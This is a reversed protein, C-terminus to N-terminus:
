SNYGRDFSEEEQYFKNRQLEYAQDPSININGLTFGFNYYENLLLYVLPASNLKNGKFRGSEQEMNNISVQTKNSTLKNFLKQIQPSLSKESDIIIEGSRADWANDISKVSTNYNKVNPFLLNFVKESSGEPMVYVMMGRIHKCLWGMFYAKESETLLNNVNEEYHRFRTLANGTGKGIGFRGQVIQLKDVLENIYVDLCDHILYYIYKKKIYSEIYEKDIHHYLLKYIEESRKSNKIYEESNKISDSITSVQKKIEALKTNEIDAIENQIDKVNKEYDEYDNIKKLDDKNFSDKSVTQLFQLASLADKIQFHKWKDFPVSYDLKNKERLLYKRMLHLNKQHYNYIELNGSQEPWLYAAVHIDVFHSLYYEIGRGFHIEWKLDKFTNQTMEFEDPSMKYFYIVWLSGLKSDSLIGNSDKILKRTLRDSAYDPDNIVKYDKLEKEKLRISQKIKAEENNLNGLADNLMTSNKNRLSEIENWLADRSEQNPYKSAFNNNLLKKAYPNNHFYDQMDEYFDEYSEYPIGNATLANTLTKLDSYNVDTKIKEQAAKKFKTLDNVQNKLDIFDKKNIEDVTDELFEKLLM